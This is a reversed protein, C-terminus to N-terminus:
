GKDSIIPLYYLNDEFAISIVYVSRWCGRDHPEQM